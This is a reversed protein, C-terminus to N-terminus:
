DESDTTPVIQSYAADEVANENSWTSMFRGGLIAVKRKGEERGRKMWKKIYLNM